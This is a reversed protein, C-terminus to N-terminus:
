KQAKCHNKMKKNRMLTKLYTQSRELFHQICGERRQTSEIDQKTTKGRKFYELLLNIAQTVKEEEPMDEPNEKM